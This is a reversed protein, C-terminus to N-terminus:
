IQEQMLAAVEAEARRREAIARNRLHVVYAGAIVLAVVNMVAVSMAQSSFGPEILGLWVFVVGVYILIARFGADWGQSFTM